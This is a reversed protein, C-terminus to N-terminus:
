YKKDTKKRHVCQSYQWLIHSVIFVALLILLGVPGAWNSDTAAAISTSILGCILIAVVPSPATLWRRQKKYLRYYEKDSPVVYGYSRGLWYSKWPFFLKRGDEATKFQRDLCQNAYNM